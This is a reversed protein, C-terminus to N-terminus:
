VRELPLVYALVDTTAHPNWAYVAVESPFYDTMGPEIFGGHNAASVAVDGVYLPGAADSPVTIRLFKRNISAIALQTRAGATCSKRPAAVHQNAPEVTSNVNVNASARGDISHGFGAYVLVTQGTASLLAFRSYYTRLAIGEWIPTLAGDDFRVMLDQVNATVVHLWDGEVDFGREIGAALTVNFPSLGRKNRSSQIEQM